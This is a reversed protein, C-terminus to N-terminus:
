NTNLINASIKEAMKEAEGAIMTRAETRQRELEQREKATMQAVEEKVSSIKTQKNSIAETRQKEILQYGKSRAELMAADYRSRKEEVSKLIQEAESSHGGKNRARSELIRNIPRFFTRNLIYIMLLILAIHILLTGNPVLEVSQFALIVSLVM